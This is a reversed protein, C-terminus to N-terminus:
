FVPPVIVGLGEVQVPIRATASWIVGLGSIGVAIWLTTRLPAELVQVPKATTKSSDSPSQTM